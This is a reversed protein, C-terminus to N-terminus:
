SGFIWLSLNWNKVHILISFPKLYSQFIFTDAIRVIAKRKYGSSVSTTGGRDNVLPKGHIQLTPSQESRETHNYNSNSGGFSDKNRSLTIHYLLLLDVTIRVHIQANQTLEQISRTPM